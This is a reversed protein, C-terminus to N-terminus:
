IDAARTVFVLAANAFINRRVLSCEGAGGGQRSYIVLHHNYARDLPLPARTVGHVLDFSVRVIHIATPAHPRALAGAEGWPRALARLTLATLFRVCV